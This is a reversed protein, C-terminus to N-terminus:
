VNGFFRESLKSLVDGLSAFSLGVTMGLLGGMEAILSQLDYSIYTTFHEVQFNSYQIMLFTCNNCGDAYNEDLDYSRETLTFKVSKCARPRTKMSWDRAKRLIEISKILTEKQTCPPLKDYGIIENLHRGTYFLPIKCKFESAIKTHGKLQYNTKTEYDGCPAKRTPEAEVKKKNSILIHHMKPEKHKQIWVSPNIDMADAADFQSHFSVFHFEDRFRSYNLYIRLQTSVADAGGEVM